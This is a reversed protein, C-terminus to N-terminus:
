KRIKFIGKLIIIIIIFIILSLYRKFYISDYIAYITLIYKHSNNLYHNITCVYLVGM